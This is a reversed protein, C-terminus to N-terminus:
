MAYLTIELSRKKVGLSPVSFTMFLKVVSLLRNNTRDISSTFDGLVVYPMWISVASNIRDMVASEFNESTLDSLLPRINAGFNILGLREGWNTLILNRLNDVVQDALDFNMTYLDNQGLSLPTKIGFPIATKAPTEQVTKDLTRGVSKFTFSGM